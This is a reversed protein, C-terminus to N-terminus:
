GPRGDVRPRVLIPLYVASFIGFALVWFLGALLIWSLYWGPVTWPGLVRAAAALNVLVFAANVPPKSRLPRGTHGLAVRAMMGLTTVGIAGATLAHTALTGPFLGLAALGQLLFGAALWGMGTYLVWLIPIQWVRPHHWGAIRLSQVLGLGISVFAVPAGLLGALHLVALAIVLAFGAREVWVRRVPHAGSIARETFFPLVRGAVWILLLLVLDLMLDTGRRATGAVWGLAEVHVLTNALAMALVLPLFLRNVRNAGRWLPRALALAVLPLFALDVLALLGPAAGPVWPLLRGALWVSALGALPAGSPTDIGTWNRVATLLFGAVVAAAYGFLMEHSHWGIRGYYAEPVMSRHWLLLWLALLAVAGTGALVFFPRFGLAFPAFGQPRGARAPEEIQTIPM